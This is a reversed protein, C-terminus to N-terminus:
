PESRIRQKLRHIKTSVNSESIGLIEAIERQSRDELYLLLLARDLPEQQEIFRELTRLRRDGDPDTVRDDAVDHVREDLPVVHRERRGRSRLSSIAVNLAVRYMWTTFSRARDYRPWARWLQTAIEQALDARDDPHRCYTGAVKFVIARHRELLEGFEQRADTAMTAAREM